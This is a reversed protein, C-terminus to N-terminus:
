PGVFIDGVYIAGQYGALDEEVHGDPVHVVASDTRHTGVLAGRHGGVAGRVVKEGLEVRESNEDDRGDEAVTEIGQEAAVIDFETADGADGCTEEEGGNGADNARDELIADILSRWTAIRSGRTIIDTGDTNPPLQWVDAQAGDGFDKDIHRTILQRIRTGRGAHLTDHNRQKQEISCHTHCHTLDQDRHDHIRM